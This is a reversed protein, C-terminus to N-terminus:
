GGCLWKYSHSTASDGGAKPQRCCRRCCSCSKSELKEAFRTSAAFIESRANIRCFRKTPGAAEGPARMTEPSAAPPLQGVVTCFPRSQSSRVLQKLPSAKGADFVVQSM